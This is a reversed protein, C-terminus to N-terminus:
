VRSLIFPPAARGPFHENNRSPKPQPKFFRICSCVKLATGSSLVWRMADFHVANASHLLLAVLTSGLLKMNVVSLPPALVLSLQCRGVHHLLSVGSILNWNSKQVQAISSELQRM